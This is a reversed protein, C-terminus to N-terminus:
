LGNRVMLDLLENDTGLSPSARLDDGLNAVDEKISKYRKALHKLAKLFDPTVTIKCSM